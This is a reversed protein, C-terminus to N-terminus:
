NNRHWLEVMEMARSFAPINTDVLDITDGYSDKLRFIRHNVSRGVFNVSIDNNNMNNNNNINDDDDSDNDNNFLDILWICIQAFEQGSFVVGNDNGRFIKVYSHHFFPPTYDISTAATTVSIEVDIAPIVRTRLSTVSISM